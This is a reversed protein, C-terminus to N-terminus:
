ASRAAHSAAEDAGYYTGYRSYYYYYAGYRGQKTMDLDNIICGLLNVSSDSAVQRRARALADKGTRGAKAVFITGDTLRALIAPDTVAGVPPSDFIVRDYRSALEQVIAKFRQSHLLEAPNPPSAGCPLLFLNPVITSRVVSQVETEGVVAKSLGESVSTIGLAKHLRPRRMDTDVILVSLGSQAFTIGMNVAVTTKGEQPGASTILLTRAPRDPSMFLLNTRISRCCEAVSSKPNTWVYLDKGAGSAPQGPRPKAAGGNHEGPNRLDISPIIGLFPVGVIKELDEQSKVTNDLSELLLALGVAVFLGIAIAISVARAVDPSVPVTPARAADLIRVNNTKLHTALSTEQERGGVQETLKILRDLDRKLHNYESAKAELTLAQNTATTLATRLDAAQKILTQYQLETNKAAQDAERTLDTKIANLRSEFAVVAPHKELYKSKLELLQGYQQVYLEKLKAAVQSDVLAPNFDTIPDSSHINSLLERQARITILKVEISSLETAIRKRKASLENQDDELSVVVINNRKKFEVLAQEANRLQTALDGYEGELWTAAYQSQSLRRDLNRELYVNAATNALLAAFQPNASQAILTVVRSDKVPDVVLADRMPKVSKELESQDSGCTAHPVLYRLAPESDGPLKRACLARAVAVAQSDSRLVRFETELSEHSTWWSPEVEVVDRFGSGMYQPVSLDIVVTATAKYIKTQKSVVVGVLAPIALAVGLMMWKRKRFTRALAGLDFSSRQNALSELPDSM